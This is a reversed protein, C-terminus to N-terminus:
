GIFKLIDVIIKKYFTLSILSNITIVSHPMIGECMFFNSYLSDSKTENSYNGTLGEVSTQDTFM